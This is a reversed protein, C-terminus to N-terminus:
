QSGRLNALYLYTLATAELYNLNGARSRVRYEITPAVREGRQIAKRRRAVKPRDQPIIQSYPHTETPEAGEEVDYMRRFAQNM